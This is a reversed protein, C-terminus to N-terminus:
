KIVVKKAYHTSLKNEMIEWASKEVITGSWFLGKTNEGTRIGYQMVEIETTPHIIKFGNPLDLTYFSDKFLILKKM